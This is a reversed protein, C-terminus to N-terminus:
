PHEDHAIRRRRLLRHWLGLRAPENENAVPENLWANPDSQGLEGALGELGGHERLLTDLADPKRDRSNM